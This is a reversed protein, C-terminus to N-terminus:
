NKLPNQGFHESPSCHDLQFVVVIRPFQFLRDALEDFMVVMLSIV